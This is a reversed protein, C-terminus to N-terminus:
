ASPWLKLIAVAGVLAGIVPMLMRMFALDGAMSRKFAPKAVMGFQHCFAIARKGRYANNRCRAAERM